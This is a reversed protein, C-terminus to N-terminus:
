AIGVRCMVDRHHRRISTTVNAMGLELMREKGKREKGKREKGKVEVAKMAKVISPPTAWHNMLIKEKECKEKYINYHQCIHFDHFAKRLGNM